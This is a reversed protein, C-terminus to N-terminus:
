SLPSAPPPPGPFNLENVEAQLVGIDALPMTLVEEYTIAKGDIEVLEAILAFASAMQEKNGAVARQAHMLDLGTGKRVGALKGSPLTITKDAKFQTPKM